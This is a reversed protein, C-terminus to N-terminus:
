VAIVEFRPVFRMIGAERRILSKLGLAAFKEDKRLGKKYADETRVAEDNDSAFAANALTQFKHVLDLPLVFTETKAKVEGFATMFDDRRINVPIKSGSSDLDSQKVALSFLKEDFYVVDPTVSLRFLCDRHNEIRLDGEKLLAALDQSPQQLDPRRGVDIWGHPHTVVTEAADSFEFGRLHAALGLLLARQEPTLRAAQPKEKGLVGALLPQDADLLVTVGYKQPQFRYEAAFSDPLATLAAQLALRDYDFDAHLAKLYGIKGDATEGAAMEALTFWVLREDQRVRELLFLYGDLTLQIHFIEFGYGTLAHNPASGQLQQFPKLSRWHTFRYHRDFELGTEERLERKLTEPLAEKAIASNESQLNKLLDDMASEDLVDQQNLRGGVLGYDGANKDHRKHTDERQYFLIRGDIKIIGWAVYIYRIPKAAALDHHALRRSELEHLIDRQQDKRDDAIGQTNWFKGDFFRSDRDGWATLLSLALLQAPFSIFRWEGQQLYATDLVALTDLLSEIMAVTNEAVARDLPQQQCLADILDQRLVPYFDGEEEAYRPLHPIFSQIPHQNM